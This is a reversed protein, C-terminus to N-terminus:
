SVWSIDCMMKYKRMKRLIQTKSPLNDNRSSTSTGGLEQFLCGPQDYLVFHRRYSPIQKIVTSLLNIPCIILMLKIAYVTSPAKVTMVAWKCQGLSVVKLSKLEAGFISSFLLFARTSFDLSSEAAHESYSM